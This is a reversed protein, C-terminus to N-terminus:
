AGRPPVLPASVGRSRSNACTTNGMDKRKGRYRTVLLPMVHWSRAEMKQAKRNLKDNDDQLLERCSIEPSAFLGIITDELIDDAVRTHKSIPSGFHFSGDPLGPEADCGDGDRTALNKMYGHMCWRYQWLGEKKRNLIGSMILPVEVREVYVIPFTTDGSHNVWGENEIYAGHKERFISDKDWIRVVIAQIEAARIFGENESHVSDSLIVIIVIALECLEAKEEVAVSELRGTANVHQVEIGEDM